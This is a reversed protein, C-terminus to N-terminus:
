TRILNRLTASRENSSLSLVYDLNAKHEALHENSTTGSWYDYAEQGYLDRLVDGQFLLVRIEDNDTDNEELAYLGNGFLLRHALEHVFACRKEIITKNNMNLRMPVNNMGSMSQEEHVIVEIKDQQFDLDTYHKFREIIREGDQEWINEYAKTGLLIDLSDLQSPYRFVLKM